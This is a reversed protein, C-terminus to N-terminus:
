TFGLMHKYPIVVGAPKGINRVNMHNIELTPEKVHKFHVLLVSTKRM